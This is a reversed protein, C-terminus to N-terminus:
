KVLPFELCYALSVPMASEPLIFFLIPKDKFLVFRPYAPQFDGASFGSGCPAASWLPVHLCPCAESFHKLLERFHELEILEGQM